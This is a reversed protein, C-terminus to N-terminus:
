NIKGLLFLAEYRYLTLNYFSCTMTLSVKLVINLITKLNNVVLAVM